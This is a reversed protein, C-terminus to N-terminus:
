IKLWNNPFCDVISNKQSFYQGFYNHIFAWFNFLTHLTTLNLPKWSFKNLIYLFWMIQQFTWRILYNKHFISCFTYVHFLKNLIRERFNNLIQGCIISNRWIKTFNLLKWLFDNLYHVIRKIRYNKHFSAWVIYLNSFHEHFVEHFITGLIKDFHVNKIVPKKSCKNLFYFFWISVTLWIIILYYHTLNKLIKDIEIIKILFQGFSTSFNTVKNLRIIEM